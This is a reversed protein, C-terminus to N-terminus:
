FAMFWSIWCSGGSIIQWLSSLHHNMEADTGKELRVPGLLFILFCFWGSRKLLAFAPGSWLLCGLPVSQKQMIVTPVSFPRQKGWPLKFPMAQAACPPMHDPTVPVSTPHSAASKAAPRGRLGEYKWCRSLWAATPATIDDLAAPLMCGGWHTEYFFM